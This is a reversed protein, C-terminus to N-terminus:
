DKMWSYAISLYPINYVVNNRIESQDIERSYYQYGGTFDWRDSIRYNVFAVADLMQDDSLYIGDAEVGVSWKPTIQYGVSGHAFPLIAQDRASSVVTGDATALDVELDQYAVGAGVLINWPSTPTLNYRWRGRLDYLRYASQIKTNAPYLKGAFRVPSSFIGTDRSEFPALFIRIEHRDKLYFDFGVSATTLPDEDKNFNNLDFTTGTASPATVENKSLYAPGFGFEFRFRRDSFGTKKKKSDADSGSPHNTLTLQLGMGGEYVMPLLSVNGSETQPTTFLWSSLLGVSSGALADDAFHADAYVRSYAVYAAGLLAPV